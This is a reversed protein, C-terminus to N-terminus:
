PRESALRSLQDRHRDMHFRLFELRQCADLPGCLFHPYVVRQLDMGALRVALANLVPQLSHLTAAWFALPGEGRPTANPPAKEQTRWTRAVIQEISLGQNPSASAQQDSTAASWIREVGAIEALVLHEIIEAASWDDSTPKWRGGSDSLEHVEALVLERSRGIDAILEHVSKEGSISEVEVVICHTRPRNFRWARAMRATPFRDLWLDPHAIAFARALESVAQEATLM